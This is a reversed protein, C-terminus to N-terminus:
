DLPSRTGGQPGVWELDYDGDGLAGRIVEEAEAPTQGPLLRCDVVVECPAPATLDILEGALVPIHSGTM